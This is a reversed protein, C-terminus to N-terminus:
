FRYTLFAFGSISFDRDVIPSEAIADGFQQARVLVFLELHHPLRANASAGLTWSWAAGPAYAPRNPTAESPRVGFYYDTTAASQWLLGLRPTWRVPGARWTRGLDLSMEQGGSRDLLDQAVGLGLRLPGLERILELALDASHRRDAMGALAPSDQAEYGGFRARLQADLRFGGHAVLRCGGLITRFYCREGEFGLVPVVIVRDTAGLYPEPSSIAGLGASWRGRDAGVGPPQAAAPVGAATALLLAVLVLLNAPRPMNM